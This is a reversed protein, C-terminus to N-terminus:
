IGLIRQCVKLVRIRCRLYTKREKKKDWKQIASSLGLKLIDRQFQNNIMIWAITTAAQFSCEYKHGYYTIVKTVGIISRPRLITKEWKQLYRSM